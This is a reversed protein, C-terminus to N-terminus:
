VAKEELPQSPLHVAIVELGPLQLQEVDDLSVAPLLHPTLPCGDCAERFLSRQLHHVPGRKVAAGGPRLIDAIEHEHFSCAGVNYRRCDLPVLHPVIRCLLLRQPGVQQQRPQLGGM